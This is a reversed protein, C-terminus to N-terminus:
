ELMVFGCPHSGPRPPRMPRKAMVVPNMRIRAKLRAPQPPPLEEEEALLTVLTVRLEEVSERFAPSTTWIMAITVLAAPLLTVVVTVKVEELELMAPTEGAAMLILETHPPVQSEANITQLPREPPTGTVPVAVMVAVAPPM